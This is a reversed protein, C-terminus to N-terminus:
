AGAPGVRRRRFFAVGQGTIDELSLRRRTTEKRESREKKEETFSMGCTKKKKKLAQTPRGKGSWDNKKGRSNEM